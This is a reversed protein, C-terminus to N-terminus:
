KSLELDQKGPRILYDVNYKILDMKSLPHDSEKYMRKNRQNTSRKFIKPKDDEDGENYDVHDKRKARISRKSIELVKDSDPIDPIDDSVDPYEPVDPESKLESTPIFDHDFEQVVKGTGFGELKKLTM